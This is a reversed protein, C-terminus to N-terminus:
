AAEKKTILDILTIGKYALLSEPWQLFCPGGHPGGRWLDAIADAVGSEQQM